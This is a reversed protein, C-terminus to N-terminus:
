AADWNWDKFRERLATKLFKGTSTRPIEDVFVFADPLWWNAFKVALHDRLADPTAEAGDKVKVVALPREQWKPHAVAIVAAEAVAAHGMLANELDVSSIWEGGSKVLDKMRDTIQVYGEPDITAVDGTAFWGDETWRDQADLQKHYSSAIWPGRVQLEGMTKGDWPAQGDEGIVRVDVFPLPLGQKALHAYREDESLESMHPKFSAVTGVPTMETMGWGHMAKLGLREAARLLSEPPAAGGTMLRMGPVLDWKDPGAELAQVVGLWITPVGAAMSVRERALLDLLNEADLYPGPFVLRAGVMACAFPLGWSNVHFMPVVPLITERLSIGLSDVLSIAFTHLVLARHTYVVGKPRGTTGSTYCMGAADYEGLLPWADGDPGAAIFDEYAEFGDPVPADSIRVVFVRELNVKDRFQEYLPLLVDDIVLFRDQAHNVIYALDDPALRLNLTHFVGGAGPVGFYAELHAYHNWMLTAVRDGPNLGADLLASCLARARREIDGYTCRHLSKDALRSVIEVKPFLKGAREILHSLTLPYDMMTGRM